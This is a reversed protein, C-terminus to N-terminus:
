KRAGIRWRDDNSAMIHLYHGHAKQVRKSRNAKYKDMGSVLNHKGHLAKQTRALVQGPSPRQSPEFRLMWEILDMLRQSYNSRRQAQDPDIDVTRSGRARNASFTLQDRIPLNGCCEPIPARGRLLCLASMGVQWVNTKASIFDHEIENNDDAVAWLQSDPQPDLVLAPDLYETRDALEPPAYSQLCGDLPDNRPMRKTRPALFRSNGFDALKPTPYTPFHDPDPEGFMINGGQLDKHIMGINEMAKLTKAMSDLFYWIFAEPVVDPYERDDIKRKQGRQTKTLGPVTGFRCYEGYLKYAFSNRPVTNYGLPKVMYNKYKGGLRCLEGWLKEANEHERPIEGIVGGVWTDADNYAAQGPMTRKMAIRDIVINNPDLQVWLAVTGEGGGGLHGGPVWRGHYGPEKFTKNAFAQSIATQQAATRDGFRTIFTAINAM